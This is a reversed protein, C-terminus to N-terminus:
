PAPPLELLQHIAPVAFVQVRSNGQDVIYLLQRNRDLALGDGSLIPLTSTLIGIMKERRFVIVEGADENLAYLLGRGDVAIGEVDGELFRHYKRDVDTYHPIDDLSAALKPDLDFIGSHPLSGLHKGRLDFIQVRHNAEDAVYLRGRHIAMSEPESLDAGTAGSKGIRYLYEGGRSFVQVDNRQKDAVYVLGLEDITIGQPELFQGDASGYEGFVRLVAGALTFVQVRAQGEDVVYLEDHSNIALGIVENAFEGPGTGQRGIEAVLKGEASFVKVAHIDSVYVRGSEDVVVSDINQFGPDTIMRVPAIEARKIKEGTCGGVVMLAAVVMLVASTPKNTKRQQLRM